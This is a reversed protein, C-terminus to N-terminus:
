LGVEAAELGDNLYDWRADNRAKKIAHKARNLQAAKYGVFLGQCKFSEFHQLDGDIKACEELKKALFKVDTLKRRLKAIHRAKLKM